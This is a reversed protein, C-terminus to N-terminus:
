IQGITFEKIRKSDVSSYLYGALMIFFIDFPLRYRPSGLFVAAVLLESLIALYPLAHISRMLSKLRVSYFIMVPLIVFFVFVTNYYKAYKIHPRDPLPWVGLSSFLDHVHEASYALAQYPNKRVEKMGEKFLARSDYPAINIHVTKKLGKQYSLESHYSHDKGNEPDRFNAFLLNSRGLYFTAGGNTAVLGPKGTLSYLRVSLLIFLPIFGLIYFPLNSRIRYKRSNLSYWLGFFPVFALIPVKFSASTIMFFGALFSHLWRLVYRESSISKVLFYFMMSICLIYPNESLFYGSLSIFLLDTSSIVLAIVAAKENFLVKASLYLFFCTLTGIAINFIKIWLFPESTHFFLSYVYHTGPPHFTDLIDEPVGNFLKVARDFYDLTDSFLCQEPSQVAFIFITRALVAIALLILLKSIKNKTKM